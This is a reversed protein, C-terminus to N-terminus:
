SIEASTANGYRKGKEVKVKSQSQLFALADTEEVDNEKYIHM